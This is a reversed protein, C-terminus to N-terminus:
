LEPCERARIGDVNQEYVAYLTDSGPRPEVVLAPSTLNTRSALYHTVLMVDDIWTVGLSPTADYVYLKLYGRVSPELSSRIRWVERLSRQIVAHDVCDNRTGFHTGFQSGYQFHQMTRCGSM